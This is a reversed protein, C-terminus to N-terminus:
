RTSRHPPMVLGSVDEAAGDQLELHLVREPDYPGPLSVNRTQFKKFGARTYYPEDGVLLVLKHGLGRAAFTGEGILQLGVGFGQYVPLIALPGLLLAPTTHGVIIPWFQISGILQGDFDAIFSLGKEAQSGERLRYSAKTQRGLGFAMDLVNDIAPGHQPLAPLIKATVPFSQKM